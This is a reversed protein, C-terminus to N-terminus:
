QMVKVRAGVIQRLSCSRRYAGVAEAWSGLLFSYPITTVVCGVSFVVLQNERSM